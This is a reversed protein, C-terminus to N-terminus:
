WADLILVPTDLPSPQFPNGSVERAGELAMLFSLVMGHMHGSSSSQLGDHPYSRDNRVTDTSDYLVAEYFSTSSRVLPTNIDAHADQSFLYMPVLM